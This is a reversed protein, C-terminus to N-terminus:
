VWYLIDFSLMRRLCDEFCVNIFATHTVRGPRSLTASTDNSQPERGIQENQAINKHTAARTNTTTEGWIKVNCKASPGSGLLRAGMQAMEDFKM